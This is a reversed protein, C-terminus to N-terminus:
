GDVMWVDEKPCYIKETKVGVHPISPFVTTNYMLTHSM